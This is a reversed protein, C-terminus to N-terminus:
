LVLDGDIKHILEELKKLDLPKESQIMKKIDYVVLDKGSMYERIFYQNGAGYVAMIRSGEM